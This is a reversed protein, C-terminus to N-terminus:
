GAVGYTVKAAEWAGRLDAVLAAFEPDERLPDLLPDRAYFPYCPFGTRAAERLYRVAQEPAGLQGYVAGLAYTVHHHKVELRLVSAVLEEALDRNGRAAEIAAWSPAASGDFAPSEPDAIARLTEIARAVDGAYYFALGDEAQPNRRLRLRQSALAAAEAYRGDWVWLMQWVGSTARAHAVAAPGGVAAAAIMEEEAAELLGLHRFARGLAAHALENGPDLELARRAAAISRAWDFDYAITAYAGALAVHAEALGPDEALARLAEDEARRAWSGAAGREHALNTSRIGAAYALGARALTYGPDIALAREFHEVANELDESLLARGQLFAEYAATNETYRRLVRERELTTMEVQLAEVVQVAVADQLGLLERRALDYVAGWLPVGDAARVLQVSVRLTQDAQQVTGSLLHAAGIERGAAALDVPGEGYRLIAATPRVRLRRVNALRTIVADPIGLELFALESDPTLLELPLIALDARDEAAPPPAAIPVGATRDRARGDFLAFAALVAARTGLVIARRRRSPSPAPASSGVEELAFALDRASNFRQEPDKALCRRLLREVAAPIAASAPLPPPEDSLIAALTQVASPRAFARRGALMEYLIAGFAFLDARHDVREGRVQEPAMYGVTGLVAGALTAETLTPGGDVEGAPLRELLRALGFDLIKVQGDRTLFVNEPKLDRHVVGKEQAAALGRAIPLAVEVARGRPLPGHALRERLTEGELLECVIYPLGRSTGVDHIALINPHSVAAAARAEREFRRRREEDAALEAPLVKVAVERGLRADRARYVEGM